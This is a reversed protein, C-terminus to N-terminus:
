VMVAVTQIDVGPRAQSYQVVVGSSSKCVKVCSQCQQVRSPEIEDNIM